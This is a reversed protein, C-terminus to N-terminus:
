FLRVFEARCEAGIYDMPAATYSYLVSYVCSCVCSGLQSHSVFALLFAALSHARHGTHQTGLLSYHPFHSPSQSASASAAPAACACASSNACVSACACACFTCM